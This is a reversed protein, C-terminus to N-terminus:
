IMELMLRYTMLLHQSKKSLEHLVESVLKDSLFMVDTGTTVISDRAICGIDTILDALTLQTVDIPNAYVAINRKGFIILFGNHAALGVVEDGNPFVDILSM